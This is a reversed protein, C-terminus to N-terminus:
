TRLRSLNHAVWPDDPRRDQCCLFIARAKELNGSNYVLIAERFLEEFSFSDLEQLTGNLINEVALFEEKQPQTTQPSGQYRHSLQIDVTAAELYEKATENTPDEVLAKEWSEIALEVKGLGYHDLGQTLYGEATLAKPSKM